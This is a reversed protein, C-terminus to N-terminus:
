AYTCFPMTIGRARCWAAWGQIILKLPYHGGVHWCEMSEKSRALRHGRPQSVAPESAPCRNRGIAVVPLNRVRTHVLHGQSNPRRITSAHCRQSTMSILIDVEAEHLVRPGSSRLKRSPSEHWTADMCLRRDAAMATEHPGIRVVSPPRRRTAMLKGVLLRPALYTNHYGEGPFSPADSTRAQGNGIHPRRGFPDTHYPTRPMAKVSHHPALSPPHCPAVV